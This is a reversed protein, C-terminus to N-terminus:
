NKPADLRFGLVLIDDLQEKRGKWDNFKKELLALQDFGNKEHMSEFDGKLQRIMYKKGRPGGFQDQFGDSFLYIYTPESIKFDHRTFKVETEHQFGGIPFKDGKISRLGESRNIMIMPNKAGAFQVTGNEEDIVCLAMDMGDRNQSDQQSLSERVGNNLLTLIRDAETAEQEFIVQHLLTSGLMSMFAGPVGHGTCDVAAIIKLGNNEGYWFFDGSVIDKPRFFIFSDKLAKSIEKLQPLMAEQIYKAYQISDTIDLNKKEIIANQEAISENAAKLNEATATIEEKQQELETNKQEIQDKQSRIERTRENVVKELMKKQRRLRIASIRAAIFLSLAFFVLYGIYAPITRYWPPLVEFSLSVPEGKAGYVNRSEVLLQYEGEPLNFYTKSNDDVWPTWEADKGVLKYRYTLKEADKFFVSTFDFIASNLRYPITQKGQPSKAFESPLDLKEKLFRLKQGSSFEDIIRSENEVDLPLWNITTMFGGGSQFSAERSLDYRVIGEPSSLWYISDEQHLNRLFVKHSKKLSALNDVVLKGNQNIYARKMEYESIEEHGSYAWLGGDNDTAINNLRGGSITIANHLVSDFFFHHSEQDFKYLGETTWAYVECEWIVVRPITLNPLGKSTDYHQIRYAATNFDHAGIQYIGHRRTSFWHNANCDETNITIDGVMGEFRYAAEWKGNKFKLIQNDALVHGPHARSTELNYASRDTIQIAQDNEWQFIGSENSVLLTTEGKHRVKEMDWCLGELGRIPIFSGNQFKYVGQGTGALLTGELKNVAFVEGNLNESEGLYTVPDSLDMRSVGANTALWVSGDKDEYLSKVNDIELGSEANIVRQRQGNPGLFIVGNITTNYLYQGNSLRIGGYFKNEINYSVFQEDLATILLSDRFAQYKILFFGGERTGAIMGDDKWPLLSYIKLDAFFSGGKPLHLTDHDMLLLGVGNEKIWYTNNVFFSQHFQGEPKWMDMEKGNWRFVQTWTQFYVGDPRLYTKWVDRFEREEEPIHAMLSVYERHGFSDVQFYGIEGQSGAYLVDESPDYALSRLTSMNAVPYLNWNIGDFSVLGLTNGFYMMGSSDQVIAWNQAAAGMEEYSYHKVFARGLQAYGSITLLLLFPCLFFGKLPYAAIAPNLSTPKTRKLDFHFPM